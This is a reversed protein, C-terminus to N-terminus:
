APTAAAATAPAKRWPQLATAHGARQGISCRPARPRGTIRSDSSGAFVGSAAAAATAVAARPLLPPPLPRERLAGTAAAASTTRGAREKGPATSGPPRAARRTENASARVSAALWAGLWEVNFAALGSRGAEATACAAGFAESQPGMPLALLQRQLCIHVRLASTCSACTAVAAAHVQWRTM